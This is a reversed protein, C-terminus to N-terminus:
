PLRHLDKLSYVRAGASAAKLLLSASTQASMIADPSANTIIHDGKAFRFNTADSVYAVAITKPSDRGLRDLQQWVDNGLFQTRMPGVM